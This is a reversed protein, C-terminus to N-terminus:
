EKEEEEEHPEGHDTEPPSSLEFELEGCPVSVQAGKPQFSCVWNVQNSFVSKSSPLGLTVAFSKPHAQSTEIPGVSVREKSANPDVQKLRLPLRSPLGEDAKIGREFASLTIQWNSARFSNGLWSSSWSAQSSPKFSPLRAPWQHREDSAHALWYPFGRLHNSLLNRRIQFQLHLAETTKTSLLPSKWEWDKETKLFLDKTWGPSHFSLTGPTHPTWTELLATIRATGKSTNKEIQLPDVSLAFWQITIEQEQDNVCARLGSRQGEISFEYVGEQETAFAYEEFREDRGGASDLASLQMGSPNGMFSRGCLSRRRSTQDAAERRFLGHTAWRPKQIFVRSVEQASVKIVQQSILENSQAEILLTVPLVGVRESTEGHGNTRYFHIEGLWEGGQNGSKFDWLADVDLGVDFGAGGRPVLLTKPHHLWHLPEGQPSFSKLTLRELFDAKDTESWNAGAENFIPSVTFRTVEDAAARGRAFIGTRKIGQENMPTSFEFPVRRDIAKKQVTERYHEMAAFLQPIGYGQDIFPTDHLPLASQILARKLIDRNFELGEAQIQSAILAAVGALAPAASSTGSFSRFGQSPISTMTFALPSLLLAGPGGDISPGRSSYSVVGQLPLSSGYNNQAHDDGIYAGVAIGMSPYIQARNMSARGPGNNGASFFYLANTSQLTSELLRQMAVQASPSQFFLSFSLNVIQASDGGAKLARAVESISFRRVGESDTIRVDVIQAGPAVGDLDRNGINFGAAVSAVGDGHSSAGKLKPPILMLSKEPLTKQSGCTLWPLDISTSGEESWEHHPFVTQTNHIDFALVSGDLLTYGFGADSKQSSSVQSLPRLVEKSDIKGDGNFDALVYVEGDSYHLAKAAFSLSEEKSHATSGALPFLSGWQLCKAKSTQPLQPHIGCPSIKFPIKSILTEKNPLSIQRLDWTSVALAIKQDVLGCREIDTEEYFPLQWIPALTISQAIKNRGDRTFSLGPRGLAVGTDLGAIRIGRGDANPYHAFWEETGFVAKASFLADDLIEESTWERVTDRDSERSTPFQILLDVEENLIIEYSGRSLGSPPLSNKSFTLAKRASVKQLFMEGSTKEVWILEVEQDEGEKLIKEELSAQEAQSLTGLSSSGEKSSHPACSVGLVLSTFILSANLFLSSLNLSRM